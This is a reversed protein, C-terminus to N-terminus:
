NYSFGPNAGMTNPDIQMNQLNVNPHLAMPQPQPQIILDSFPPNTTMFNIWDEGLVSNMDLQDGNMDEPLSNGDGEDQIEVRYSDQAGEFRATDTREKLTWSIYGDGLSSGDDYRATPVFVNEKKQKTWCEEVAGNVVREQEFLLTQCDTRDLIRQSLSISKLDQAKYPDVSFVGWGKRPDHLHGQVTILEKQSESFRILFLREADKHGLNMEPRERHQILIRKADDQQIYGVIYGCQWLKLLHEDGSLLQVTGWLWEWFTHKLRHSSTQRAFMDFNVDSLLLFFLLFLTLFNLNKKFVTSTRFDPIEIFFM